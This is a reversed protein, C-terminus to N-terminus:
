ASGRHGLRVRQALETLDVIGEQAADQKSEAAARSVERAVVALPEYGTERADQALADCLSQLEDMLGHAEADQLADIREALEFVFEDILEGKSADSELVSYLPLPRTM